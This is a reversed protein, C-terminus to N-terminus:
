NPVSISKNSHVDGQTTQIYPDNSTRINLQVSSSSNNTENVATLTLLFSGVNTTSINATGSNPNVPGNWSNLVPNSSATADTANTIQWSITVPDNQRVTVPINNGPFTGNPTTVTLQVSPTVAPPNIPTQQCAQPSIAASMGSFPSEVDEYYGPYDITGTPNGNEDIGTNESYPPHYITRYSTFWYNYSMGETVAGDTYNNEAPPHNPPLYTRSAVNRNTGRYLKYGSALPENNLWSVSFDEITGPNTDSCVPTIVPACSPTYVALIDSSPTRASYDNNRGNGSNSGFVGYYYIKNPELAKDTGFFDTYWYAILQSFSPNPEQARFVHWYRVNTSNSGSWSLNVVPVSGICSTTGTLLPEDCNVNECSYGTDSSDATATAGVTDITHNQNSLTGAIPADQVGAENGLGIAPDLTTVYDTFNGVDNDGVSFNDFNGSNSDTGSFDNNMTFEGANAASKDDTQDIGGSYAAQSNDGGGGHGDATDEQASVNIPFFTVVLCASVFFAALTKYLASM